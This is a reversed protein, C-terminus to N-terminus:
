NLNASRIESFFFLQSMLVEEKTGRKVRAVSKDFTLDQIFSFVAM